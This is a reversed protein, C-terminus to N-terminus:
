TKIDDGLSQAFTNQPLLPLFDCGYKIPLTIVKVESGWSAASRARKWTLDIEGSQSTLGIDECQVEAVFHWKM